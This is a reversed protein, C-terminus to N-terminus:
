LMGVVDTYVRLWRQIMVYSYAKTKVGLSEIGLAISWFMLSNMHNLFKSWYAENECRM